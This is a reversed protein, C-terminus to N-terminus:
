SPPPTLAPRWRAPTQFWFPQVGKGRDCLQILRRSIVPDDVLVGRAVAMASLLSTRWKENPALLPLTRGTGHPGWEIGSKSVVSRWPYPRDSHANRSSKLRPDGISPTPLSHTSSESKHTEPSTKMVTRLVLVIYFPSVEVMFLSLFFFFFLFPFFVIFYLLPGRSALYLM